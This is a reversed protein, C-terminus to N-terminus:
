ELEMIFAQAEVSPFPNQEVYWGDGAGLCFVDYTWFSFFFVDYTSKM